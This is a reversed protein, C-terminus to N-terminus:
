SLGRDELGFAGAHLRDRLADGLATIALVTSTIALGPVIALHPAFAMMTQAENLMRGWSPQPPQVGLGLYSLGAEALIALSLQTTGQVVLVGAINPLVHAYSVTTRGRGAVQAAQVFARQWVTKATSRTLRAFVPVNFLGIAIMANVAGPGFGATIIVALLVAPFAFAIDTSRMVTEDVWGGREAALLGLPVGIGVGVGVAVFAVGIAARAGSMLMSLVDRGFHDTGLPHAFSVGQLRDGISMALPDYPTWVFSLLATATVFILFGAGIRGRLGLGTM